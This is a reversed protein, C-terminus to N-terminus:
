VLTCLTCGVKYVLLSPGLSRVSSVRSIISTTVLFLCKLTLLKLDLNENSPLSQLYAFVRTIDFTAVYKPLPPRLRFVAKVAQGVLPHKGIPLGNIGAHFKSVSSRHYNVTNYAAGIEYLQRIYKVLVTPGCTFPDANLTSCFDVFYRFASNYGTESGSALHHSLFELDDSNLNSGSHSASFNQGFNTSGSPARSITSDAGRGCSESSGQLPPSPSTTGADDRDCSAVLPSIAVSPLDVSSQNRAGQSIQAGKSASSHTPFSIFNRGMPAVVRGSCGGPQRSVM